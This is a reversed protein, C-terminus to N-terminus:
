DTPGNRQKLVDEIRALRRDLGSMASHLAGVVMLQGEHARRTNDDMADWDVHQLVMLGRKLLTGAQDRKRMAITQHEGALAIRYGQNRINLLARCQEIALKREARGVSAQVDARGYDRSAGVSLGAALADYTLLDGPKAAAVIEALVEADSRGDSRTIVFRSM